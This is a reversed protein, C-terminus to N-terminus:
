ANHKSKKNEYMAKDAEILMDEISEHKLPEYDVFGFSFEIFYPLCDSTCRSRLSAKFRVILQQIGETSTNTLLVVFEDGGLRAFIDSTRFSGMMEDAFIKLARDGEAHGHADNIEKFKDLDFFVLSAPFSGRKCVELCYRTLTLFGRRNSIKTLEDSITLQVAMIEREVMGALNALMTIDEDSFDRPTQDIICLTGLGQGSLTRLPQGAYFRIYPEGIVLPNDFFREDLTADNIVLASKNLIAHGCFSISRETESVDLGFCSKFWQRNEDVLSVLAIPVGFLRKAMRTVCDFREESPTDLIALARLQSLRVQEDDPIKPLKM